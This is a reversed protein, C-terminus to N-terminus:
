TTYRRWGGSETRLRSAGFGLAAPDFFCRVGPTVAGDDTRAPPHGRAWDDGSHPPTGRRRVHSGVRRESLGQVHVGRSESRRLKLEASSSPDLLDSFSENYLQTYSVSVKAGAVKGAREFLEAGFRPIIGATRARSAPSVSGDASAGMMSYSKGSGTQGYALVTCNFGDFLAAMPGAVLNAYVDHQAADAAFAADFSFTAEEEGSHVTVAGDDSVSVCPEGDAATEPRCRVAVRVPLRAPPDAM